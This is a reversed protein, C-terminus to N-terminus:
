LFDSQVCNVSKIPGSLNFMLYKFCMPVRPSAKRVLMNLVARLLFM